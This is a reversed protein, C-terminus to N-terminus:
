TYKWAEGAIDAYGISVYPGCYVLVHGVRVWSQNVSRKDGCPM